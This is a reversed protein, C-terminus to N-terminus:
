PSVVRYFQVHNTASSDTFQYQGSSIETVNGLARWNILPLSLNTSTLATFDANPANTFAFQLENNFRRVNKLVPPRSAPASFQVEVAGIDM